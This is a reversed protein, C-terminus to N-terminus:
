FPDGGYSQGRDGGPMVKVPNAQAVWLAQVPSRLDLYEAADVARADLRMKRDLWLVGDAIAWREAITLLEGASDTERPLADVGMPDPLSLSLRHTETFPHGFVLPMRRAERWLAPLPRGLIKEVNLSLASGRPVAVNGPSLTVQLKLAKDPDDRKGAVAVVSSWEIESGEGTSLLARMRKSVDEGSALIFRAGAADLGKLEVRMQGSAMGERNLSLSVEFKRTNDEAKDVPLDILEARDTRVLLGRQGQLAGPLRGTPLFPTSPDIFQYAGGAPVAIIVHNFPAPTPLDPVVAFSGLRSVLVPFGDIGMHRLMALGLSAQDKADGIKSSLIAGPSHAPLAALNLFTPVDSVRDQLYRQARKLKQAKTGAKGGSDRVATEVSSDPQDHGATLERYWTAVDDWTRYATYRQNRLTYGKLQVHVQTALAAEDPRKEEPYIAAENEFVWVLRTGSVGEGRGDPGKIRQPLKAPRKQVVRGLKTVRYDLDYNAPHNVLVEGRVVPLAGGIRVPEVWRPDRFVRLYSYEIVDGAKAGSVKSLKYGEDNYLKAPPSGEKYRPLDVTRDASLEKVTGDPRTIRAQIHMIRSRDDYPLQLKALETASDDFLQIRRTVLQQAYPKMQDPSFSFTLEHRDLLVVAPVDPFAGREVRGSVHFKEMQPKPGACAGLTVVLFGLVFTRTPNSISVSSRM